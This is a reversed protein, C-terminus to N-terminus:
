DQKYLDKQDTTFFISFLAAMLGVFGTVWFGGTLGAFDSLFGIVLPGVFMGLGYVAQFFGMATARKDTEINRISIGMLLPFVGGWAFGGFVQTIYLVSINKIYPIVTCFISTLIFGWIITKREGFRKAFFSSSLISSVIGPMTSLTTLISIQFNNAGIQKALIPTFGYVTAFIIFQSLVGLFSIRLLNKDKIISILDSIKVSTSKPSNPEYIYMSFILGLIAGFVALLFSIKLGFYNSFIGGLIIALMIGTSNFANIVGIARPTDKVDFYGTYQIIFVVWGAASVGSLGRSILVMGPSDFFWLGLGSFLAVMLAGIIFVKRKNLRDSIIGIPIRFLMQTFGYSGIILGVMKYSAGISRVYIPLTPVYTYLSFWYLVTTLYFLPIKKKLETTSLANM